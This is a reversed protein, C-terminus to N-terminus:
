TTVTRFKAKLSKEYDEQSEVADAIGDIRNPPLVILGDSDGIIVHGPHCVVHGCAVAEGVSGPGFKYPGAPSIGRSYVPLGIAELEEVDRVAGDIVIGVAGRLAAAEAVLGGIIARTTDGMANIVLVDGPQIEELARHVALNDGERCYVPLISGALRPHTTRPRLESSLMGVRDQTDGILAVPYQALREVSTRDPREPLLSVRIKSTDADIFM